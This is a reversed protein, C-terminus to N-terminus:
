TIGYSTRNGMKIARDVLNYDLKEAEHLEEFSKPNVLM